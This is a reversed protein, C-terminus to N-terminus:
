KVKTSRKRAQRAKAASVKNNRRKAARARNRRARRARRAAQARARALRPNCAGMPVKTRISTPTTETTSVALDDLRPANFYTKWRYTSFGHELLTAARLARVRGTREGLVVAILRRGDRTASAIVNFGSDCIFGTKMGDAGEFNRLLSNHSRLRRRGVRMKSMSWYAAHEPFDAQVARALRALDRATTVQEPSPLGNPNVFKTRTMGLRKATENMRAVFTDHSGGVAEAIAVAIDNASKIILARLAFDITVEAGPSLGIKSAPMKQALASYKIKTDLTLKGAKIAEFTVYATMIKTISAPHWVRDAEEAYLVTGSDPEFLLTPEADARESWALLGAFM